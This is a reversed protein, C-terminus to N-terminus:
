PLLTPAGLRAAWHAKMSKLDDAPSFPAPDTALTELVEFAFAAEGHTHWAAQLARDRHQGLRLMFFAGNRAADLNPSAGVWGHGTVTNRLAFAGGDPPHDKYHRVAAKRNASM